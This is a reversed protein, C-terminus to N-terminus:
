SSFKVCERMEPIMGIERMMDLVHRPQSTGKLFYAATGLFLRRIVYRDEQLMLPRDRLLQWLEKLHLHERLDAM